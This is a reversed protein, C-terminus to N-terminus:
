RLGAAPHYDPSLEHYDFTDTDTHYVIPKDYHSRKYACCTCTWDPWDNQIVYDLCASYHRCFLNRGGKLHRPNCRSRM